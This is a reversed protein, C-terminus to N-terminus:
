RGRPPPTSGYSRYYDRWILKWVRLGRPISRLGPIWPLFIVFFMLIGSAAVAALDSDGLATRIPGPLTYWMTYWWLWPQGPWNGIENMIGWEDGQLHYYSGVDNLYGGDEVNLLSFTHDNGYFGGPNDVLGTDLTGGIAAALLVSTMAPIPGTDGSGSLAVTTGDVSVTATSAATAWATQQDASASNWTELATKADSSVTAFATLPALFLDQPADVPTHVGFWAQPSIPGISQLQGTADNYPPGYTATESTGALESIETTAFDVPDAQAWSQYTVANVKPSGFLVALVIALIFTIVMALTAEKLLDYKERPGRWGRRAQLEDHHYSM